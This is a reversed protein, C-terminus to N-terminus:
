SKRTRLLVSLLVFLHYPLFSLFRGRGEKWVWGKEKALTGIAIWCSPRFSVGSLILIKM